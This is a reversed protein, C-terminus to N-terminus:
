KKTKKKVVILFTGFTRCVSKLEDLAYLLSIVINAVYSVDPIGKYNYQQMLVDLPQGLLQMVMCVHIGNDTKHYFHSMHHASGSEFKRAIVSSKRSIFDNLAAEHLAAPSLSESSRMIKIAVWRGEDGIDTHTDLALWVSASTGDGLFEIMSYGNLELGKKIELYPGSDSNSSM